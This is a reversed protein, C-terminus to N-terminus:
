WLTGSGASALRRQLSAAAFATFADAALRRLRQLAAEGFPLPVKQTEAVHSPNPNNSLCRIQFGPERAAPGAQRILRNPEDGLLTLMSAASMVNRRSPQPCIPADAATGETPACAM